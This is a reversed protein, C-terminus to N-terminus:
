GGLADRAKATDAIFEGRVVKGGSLRFLQLYRSEFSGGPGTSREVGTVVVHNGADIYEEPELSFSSWYKPIQV